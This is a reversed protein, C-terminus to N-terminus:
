EEWPLHIQPLKLPVAAQQEYHIGVEELQKLFSHVYIPSSFNQIFDLTFRGNVATIELLLDENMPSAWLHFDRIYREADGLNGKGVYSVTATWLHKLEESNKKAALAREQDSSMALMSRTNRNIYRLVTLAQEPQKQVFVMGRYMTAQAALPFKRMKEKYELWIDGVLCQHALPTGLAKRLNHCLNILTRYQSEPYLSVIARSLLLAAITVPSADHDSSLRMLQNEDMSVSFVTKATDHELGAM